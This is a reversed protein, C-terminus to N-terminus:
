ALLMYGALSLAMRDSGIDVFAAPGVKHRLVVVVEWSSAVRLVAALNALSWTKKPVLGM